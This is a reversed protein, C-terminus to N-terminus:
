LERLKFFIDIFNLGKNIYFLFIWKVDLVNEDFKLVLCFEVLVIGLEKM